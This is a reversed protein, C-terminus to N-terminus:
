PAITAYAAVDTVPDLAKGQPSGRTRWSEAELLGVKVM